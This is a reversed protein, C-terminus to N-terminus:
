KLSNLYAVIPSVAPGNRGSLIDLHTLGPLVQGLIPTNPFVPQSSQFRQANTVIGRGAGLALIPFALQRPQLEPVALRWAGLDLSLRYPFFWEAFGTSLSAYGRLFERPDTAEGTDIWEVRKSARPARIAFNLNGQVLALLNFSERAEARGASVSFINILNYRDDIQSLAAAELSAKFKVAGAPADGTPNVAAMYALAEARALFAPDLFFAQVYPLARGALLDDLGATNGFAGRGGQRYQEPTSYNTNPAGDIWILGSLKEGYRQAYASSLSAGLSHGAMVVPGRQRAQNVLADLDALHVALGWERLFSVEPLKFSQYYDWPNNTKLGARDELGNARRDWAWVEWGPAALVIRAALADFSGAGGLFGPVLIVTGKFAGQAPYIAAFSQDLAAGASTAAGAFSRYDVPGNYRASQSWALGLLVCFTFLARM